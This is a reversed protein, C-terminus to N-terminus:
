KWESAARRSDEVCDVCYVHGGLTYLDEGELIGEGCEDCIAVVQREEPLMDEYEMLAAYFGHDSMKVEGKTTLRIEACNKMAAIM